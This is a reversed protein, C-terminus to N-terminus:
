VIETPSPLVKKNKITRFIVSYRVADPVADPHNWTPDPPVSHTYRRNGEATVTLLSGHPLYKDFVVDDDGTSSSSSPDAATKNNPDVYERMVFRRPLGVSLVYFPTGAVIDAAGVGGLGEQKDRHQLVGIPRLSHM